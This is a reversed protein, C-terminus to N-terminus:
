HTTLTVGKRALDDVQQSIQALTNAVVAFERGVAGARAAIVQANFSVVKAERAVSQIHGVIGKLERRISTEKDTSIHDFVSTAANLVQLVDDVQSVLRQFAAGAGARPNQAHALAEEACQIFHHVKKEVQGSGFYLAQLQQGSPGTQERATRVLEAESDRFLALTKHAAEVQGPVGQSALVIQLTLRQSLMRQRAALNVVSMDTRPVEPEVSSMLAHAPLRANM